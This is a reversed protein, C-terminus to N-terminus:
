PRNMNTEHDMTYRVKRGEINSYGPRQTGLQPILGYWKGKRQLPKWCSDLAVLPSSLIDCQLFAEYVKPIYSAKILYGSSAQAERIRVVNSKHTLSTHVKMGAVLDYKLINLSLAIINWDSLTGSVHSLIGKVYQPDVTPLWQFDDEFVLISQLDRSLAYQFARMHSLQCGLQAACYANGWCEEVGPQKSISVARIREYPIRARTLQEQLRGSRDSRVDLNLYVARFEQNGV